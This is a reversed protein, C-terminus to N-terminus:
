NRAVPILQLGAGVLQKNVVAVIDPGTSLRCVLDAFLGAIAVAALARPNLRPAM